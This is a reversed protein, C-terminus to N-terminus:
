KPNINITASLNASDGNEPMVINPNISFNNNFHSNGTLSASNSGDYPMDFNLTLTAVKNESLKYSWSANGVLGTWTGSTGVGSCATGTYTSPAIDNCATAKGSSTFMGNQTFEITSNNQIGLTLNFNSDETVKM